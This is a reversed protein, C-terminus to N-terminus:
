FVHGTTSRGDDDDVDHTADRYGSLKSNDGTRFTLGHSCTGQLYRLIQKMAAAHSTRPEAMYRSMVGFSYSLDPRTHLLYRLCGVNRRYEKEDVRGEDCAKSLKLSPDMPVHVMNCDQM